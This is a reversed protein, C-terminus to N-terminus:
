RLPAGDSRRDLRLSRRLARSAAAHWGLMLTGPALIWAPWFYGEGTLAWVAVLSGNVAVYAGAHAGLARRQWRYLGRAARAGRDTPLDALPGRLEARSRASYVRHLREELETSTLRGAAFHHRLSAAAREREADSARVSRTTTTVLAAGRSM